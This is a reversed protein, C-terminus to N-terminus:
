QSNFSLLFLTIRIAKLLIPKLFEHFNTFTPNQSVECTTIKVYVRANM